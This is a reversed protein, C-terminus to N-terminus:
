HCKRNEFIFRVMDETEHPSETYVYKKLFSELRALDYDGSEISDMLEWASECLTSPIEKKYDMYIDRASMYSDYDYDYFYVPKRLIAAEYIICSYDSVVMDAAFLMDFSSFTRDIIAKGADFGMLETLPHPKLILNYKDYDVASCLSRLAQLFEEDHAKRFTPVYVINAKEKMQPYVDFIKKRIALSYNADKLREVRPLPMTTIKKVPYNFGEALHARYGDGAAFIIDYNEHMKMLRAIKSSSGEPKNLVSYGFKKMTGISHWIQVILLSRRHHLISVLICYSDIIVIESTALHYLQRFMHFLYAINSIFGSEIKRCLFVTNYEPHLENVKDRLMTMDLSPSNSQRSIFTVKRRQPLLKLAAYIINFILIGAKIIIHM